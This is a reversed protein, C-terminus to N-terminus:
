HVIRAMVRVSPMANILQSITFRAWPSGNVEELRLEDFTMDPSTM